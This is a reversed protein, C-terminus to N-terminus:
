LYGHAELQIPALEIRRGSVEVPIIRVWHAKQGPAWPDLHLHAIERPTAEYAVGAILVSWGTRRWPDIQDVQFAVPGIRLDEVKSGMDSRFVIVEGDLVFNVPVVLPAAAGRSVAVRGVPCTALLEFCEQRDISGFTSARSDTVDIEDM